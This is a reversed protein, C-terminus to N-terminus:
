RNMMGGDTRRPWNPAQMGTRGGFNQSFRYGGDYHYGYYDNVGNGDADAFVDNIGDGNADVWGFGHMYSTGAMDDIGDGNADRRSAMYGYCVAQGPFLGTALDNIGDGDADVFRDNIGDGNADVWGFGHGYPTTISGIDNIGDGNADAFFDNLGDGNLDAWGPMAVYRTGMLDNIGDGNADTFRDNIGDGNSDSWGFPQKFPMGSLDCIGDGDADIFRDNFTDRDTDVFGFGFGYPRGTLDNVGDGDADRFRDNLADSNGDSYGLEMHFPYGAYRYGQDCIGDGNLDAFNDNLGDGNADIWGFHYGNFGTFNRVRGDALLMQGFDLGYGAVMRFPFEIVTGDGPHIFLSHDGNPVNSVTFRDNADTFFPTPSNDLYITAPVLAVASTPTFLEMITSVVGSETTLVGTVTSSQFTPSPAATGDSSSGGGGCATLVLITATLMLFPRLRKFRIM